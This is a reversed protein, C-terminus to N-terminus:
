SLKIVNFSSFMSGSRKMYRGVEGGIINTQTGNYIEVSLNDGNATMVCCELAPPEVRNFLVHEGEQLRPSLRNSQMMVIIDNTSQNKFLESSIM